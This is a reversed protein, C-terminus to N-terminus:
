RGKRFSKGTDSAWNASYRMFTGICYDMVEKRGYASIEPSISAIFETCKSDLYHPIDKAAGRKSTKKVATKVAAAAKSVARKRGRVSAVVKAAAHEVKKRIPRNEGMVELRRYLTSLGVKLVGAAKRVDKKCRNLVSRIQTDSIGPMPGGM